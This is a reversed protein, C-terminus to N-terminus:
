RLAYISNIERVLGFTAIFGEFDESPSAGSAVLSAFAHKSLARSEGSDVCFVDSDVVVAKKDPRSRFFRRSRHLGSPLFEESLFIRRGGKDVIEFTERHLLGEICYTSDSIWDPAKLAAVYLGESIRRHFTGESPALGVKGLVVPDDCDFLAITLNRRAGTDGLLRVARELEPGGRKGLDLFNLRFDRFRGQQQLSGLASSLLIEDSVGEVLLDIEIINTSLPFLQPVQSYSRALQRVMSAGTKGELWALFNVKGKVLNLGGGLGWSSFISESREGYKRVVQLESRLRRRWKRPMGLGGRFKLGTVLASKGPSVRFKSENLSFGNDEFIKSLLKSPRYNGGNLYAIYKPVANLGTSFCIDDAYRSVSCKSKSALEVLMRDLRVCVLNSIAPSSPGGQPLSRGDTCLQALLTAVTSNFSMPPAMFAGRVRGFNISGFFDNIDAVIVTSKSKHPRAHDYISRGHEFGNSILSRKRFHDVAFAIRRQVDKLVGTPAQIDRSGGNKKSISFKSYKRNAAAYALYKLQAESIRLWFALDVRSRMAIFARLEAESLPSAM